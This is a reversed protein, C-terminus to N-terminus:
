RTVEGLFRSYLEGDRRVPNDPDPILATIM